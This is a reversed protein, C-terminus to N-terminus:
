RRAEDRVARILEPFTYSALSCGPSLLLKDRGAEAIAQRVEARLAAAPSYQFNAHSLGGM